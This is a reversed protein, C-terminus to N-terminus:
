CARALRRAAAVSRCFSCMCFAGVVLRVVSASPWVFESSYRGVSTGRVGCECVTDEGGAPVGVQKSLDERLQGRVGAEVVM